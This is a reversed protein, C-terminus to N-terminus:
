QVPKGILDGIEWAFVRGRSHVPHLLTDSASVHRSGLHVRTRALTELADVAPELPWGEADYGYLLIAKRGRLGSAALKECDTLASRHEPYPSLVHM